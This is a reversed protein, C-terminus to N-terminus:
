PNLNFTTSGIVQGTVSSIPRVALRLLSYSPLTSWPGTWAVVVVIIVIYPSWSRIAARADIPAGNPQELATHRTVPVGGVGRVTAPRWIKTVAFLAWFSVLAGTIDPLYPGLFLAVPWQGAIYSLSGVIALPWAELMGERGSVLYLLVWPPLIALMAVIHGVSASLANLPLGT